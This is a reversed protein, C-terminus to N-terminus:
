AAPAPKADGTKLPTKGSLVDEIRQSMVSDGSLEEHRWHQMDPKHVVAAESVAAITTNHRRIFARLRPERADAIGKGSATAATADTTEHPTAEGRVVPLEAETVTPPAVAPEAQSSRGDVGGTTEASKRRCRERHRKWAALGLEGFERTVATRVFQHFQAVARGVADDIKVGDYPQLKNRYTRESLIAVSEELFSEFERPKHIHGAATEGYGLCMRKTYEIGAQWHPLPEVLFSSPEHWNAGLEESRFAVEAEAQAAEVPEAGSLAHIWREARERATPPVTERTAWVLESLRGMDITRLVLHVIAFLLRLSRCL